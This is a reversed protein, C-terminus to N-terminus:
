TICLRALNNFRTLDDYSTKLECMYINMPMALFWHLQAIIITEVTQSVPKQKSAFVLFVVDFGTETEHWDFVAKVLLYKSINMHM